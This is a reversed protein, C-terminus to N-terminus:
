QEHHTLGVRHQGLLQGPVQGCGRENAQTLVRLARHMLQHARHRLTGRTRCRNTRRHVGQNLLVEPHRRAGVRQLCGVRLVRHANVQRTGSGGGGRRSIRYIRSVLLFLVLEGELVVELFGLAFQVGGYLAEPLAEGGALPTAVLPLVADPRDFVRDFGVDLAYAQAATDVRHEAGLVLVAFAPDQHIPLATGARLHRGHLRPTELQAQVTDCEGADHAHVRLTDAGHEHVQAALANRLHPIM